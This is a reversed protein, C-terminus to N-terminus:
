FPDEPEDVEGGIDRAMLAILALIYDHDTPTYLLAGQRVHHELLSGWDLGNYKKSAKIYSELLGTLKEVELRSM